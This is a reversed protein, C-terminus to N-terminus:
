VSFYRIILIILIFINFYYAMLSLVGIVLFMIGFFFFGTIETGDIYLDNPNGIISYFGLGFFIIAFAICVLIM